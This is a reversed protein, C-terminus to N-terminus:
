KVCPDPFAQRTLQKFLVQPQSLTFKTPYPLELGLSYFVALPVM